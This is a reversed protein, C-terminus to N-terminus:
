IRGGTSGRVVLEPAFLQEERSAKEGRMQALLVDVAARCLAEVPQRVTTLPPDTFAVLPSDDYGVVSVDQPVRLGASRAARVAGFAMLDSGCVLATHGTALLEAAAAQGGEATFLSTSVHVEGDDLGHRALAAGFAAVKRRAPVYREPGIALGIRRHGLSVLHDVSLDVAAADDTSVFPADIEPTYGNVLVIPVGSNRLRHYRGLNAQTDAHLGSVFVIGNVAHDLLVEVYRDETTGGPAQTCLLPTFRAESLRREIADAFAPFVPNTLEPVVLGVLGVSKTTLAAPREFGLLDLAALVAQRTAGSVGPRGNLVRSVTATSVQAQQAIDALRTQM